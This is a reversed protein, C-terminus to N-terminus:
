NIKSLVKEFKSNGYEVKLKNIKKEKVFEKFLKKLEDKTFAKYEGQQVLKIGESVAPIITKVEIGVNRFKAKDLAELNDHDRSTFVFRVFNGKEVEKKYRELLVERETSNTIDLNIELNFYKAFSLEKSEFEGTETDFIIFGKNNDESYNRPSTSGIYYINKFNSRDHYHGIFVKDFFKLSDYDIGDESIEGDNNKCGMVDIHTFLYQPFNTRKVVGIAKQLYKNYTTKEDFYPIFHLGVGDVVEYFYDSFIRVNPHHSYQDLFSHESEYDSKDHNGPIIDVSINDSAFANLEEHLYHLVDQPQATRSEFVDGTIIISKINNMKAFVRIQALEDCVKAINNISLHPDTFVIKKM